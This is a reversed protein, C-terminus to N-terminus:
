ALVKLRARIDNLKDSEVATGAGAIEKYAKLAVSYDKVLARYEQVLPNARTITRGDGMEANITLPATFFESEHTTIKEQMALIAAKLTEPTDMYGKKAM